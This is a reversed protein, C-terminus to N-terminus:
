SLINIEGNSCEFQIPRNVTHHTEDKFFINFTYEERIKSFNLCISTAKIHVVLLKPFELIFIVCKQGKVETQM